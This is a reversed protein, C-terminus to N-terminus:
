AGAFATLRDRPLAILSVPPRLCQDPNLTEQVWVGSREGGVAGPMTSCARGDHPPHIHTRRCESREGAGPM